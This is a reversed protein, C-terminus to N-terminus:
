TEVTTMGRPTTRAKCANPVSPRVPQHQTTRSLGSARTSPTQVGQPRHERRESTQILTQISSHGLRHITSPTRSTLSLCSPQSPSAPPSPPVLPCSLPLVISPSRYFSFSLLFSPLFSHLQASSTPLSIEIQPYFRAMAVSRYTSTNQGGQAQALKRENASPTTSTRWEDNVNSRHVTFRSSSGALQNEVRMWCSLAEVKEALTAAPVYWSSRTM